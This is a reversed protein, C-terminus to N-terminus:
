RHENYRPISFKDVSKKFNKVERRKEATSNKFYDRYLLVM